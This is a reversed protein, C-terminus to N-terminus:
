FWGIARDLMAIGEKQELLRHNIPLRACNFGLAKIKKVDKENFFSARFYKEFEKLGKHGYRDKLGNKFIHESINRGGLMYGEMM